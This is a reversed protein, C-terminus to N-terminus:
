SFLFLDREECLNEVNREAIQGCLGVLDGIGPSLCVTIEHVLEGEIDGVKARLPSHDMEGVDIRSGKARHDTKHIVKSRVGSEEAMELFETENINVM